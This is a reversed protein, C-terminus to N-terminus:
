SMWYEDRNQMRKKYIETRRAEQYEKNKYNEQNFARLKNFARRYNDRVVRYETTMRVEENVLGMPGIHGRTMKNLRESAETVEDDLQKHLELLEQIQNM